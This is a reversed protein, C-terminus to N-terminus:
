SLRYVKSALPELHILKGANKGTEADTLSKSGLSVTRPQNSFNLLFVFAEDGSGRIQATVGPPLEADIISEISLGSLVRGYFASNATGDLRTGVFYARGKGFSNVTVAPQGKYFDESYTAIATAGTLHMLSASDGGSGPLGTIARPTGHALRDVEEVWLGFVEGLGEGPWGGLLMRNSEDAMATDWTAVVIGGNEVYARIQAAFQPTMIWHMPLVVLKYRGLDRDNSIVDVPIGRQWFNQYQEVAIEDYYHMQNAQGHPTSVGVGCSHHQGWRSDWDYVMAVQPQVSTGLVSTIKEYTDSLGRLEKFRRTERQRETGWHEVVSGHLKEMSGRGSRFQFYCTGDAGHAIAQLMELRHVNPRKAKQPTRWQVAGPCSEMLMFSREPKFCRYLDHKMSIYTGSKALNPDDTDFGPYQDDTVVDVVRGIAQYNLSFATGMFNTTIPINPAIWRLINAEFSYWDILQHNAFRLWDLVLGDMVDDSPEAHRWETAQHAWFYAWHADNMKKLSGYRQELWSQWWGRCLDCFCHGSLENSVHWMALAPHQGYREALKTDIIKVREHYAPSSWCHNHRGGYLARHGQKDVRRAEPYKEALWAPMAGSPTALIVRNGIAAQADMVRDLWDFNFQNESPELTTWAFVGLTTSNIGTERMIAADQELIDPVMPLWQDPNYDGGHIIATQDRFPTPVRSGPLLDRNM